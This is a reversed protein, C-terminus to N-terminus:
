FGLAKIRNFDPLRQGLFRHNKNTKTIATKNENIELGQKKLLKKILNLVKETTNENPTMALLDDSYRVFAIGKKELQHDIPNLFLNCLLPSIVSGQSIGCAQGMLSRHHHYQDIWIEFLKIMNKESILQRLCRKLGLHPITDFFSEIDIHVLWINGALICERAKSAAMMVSRQPRYGYSNHHFIREAIPEIAMTVTKQALKDRLYTTTIKRVKGNAQQMSFSRLPEPQYTNQLIQKRLTLLHLLFNKDLEARNVRRSWDTKDKRLMRWVKNMTYESLAKELLSSM